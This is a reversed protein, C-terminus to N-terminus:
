TQWTLLSFAFAIGLPAYLNWMLQIACDIKDAEGLKIYLNIIDHIHINQTVPFRILNVLFIIYGILSFFSLTSAVVSLYSVGRKQLDDFLKRAILRLIEIENLNEQGVNISISIYQKKRQFFKRKNLHNLERIVYNVFSSKGAGRYGTIM